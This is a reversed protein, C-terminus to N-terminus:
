QNVFQSLSDIENQELNSLTLLKEESKTVKEKNESDTQTSTVSLSNSKSVELLQEDSKNESLHTVKVLKTDGNGVIFNYLIEKITNNENFCDDLFDIIVKEKEKESNM